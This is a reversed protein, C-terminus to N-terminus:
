KVTIIADLNGCEVGLSKITDVSPYALASFVEPYPRYFVDIKDGVRPIFSVEKFENQGHEHIILVKM